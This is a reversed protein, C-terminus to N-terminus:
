HKVFYTLINTIVNYGVKNFMYNSRMNLTTCVPLSCLIRVDRFTIAFCEFMASCQTRPCTVSHHFTLRQISQDIGRFIINIYTNISYFYVYCIPFLSGCAQMCNCNPRCHIPGLVLDLRLFM